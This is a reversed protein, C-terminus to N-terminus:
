KGAIVHQRHLPVNPLPGFAAPPRVPHSCLDGVSCAPDHCAVPGCSIPLRLWICLQVDSQGWCWCGCLPTQAERRTYVSSNSVSLAKLAPQLCRM